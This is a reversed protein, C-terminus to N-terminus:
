LTTQDIRRRTGRRALRTLPCTSAMSSFRGAGIKQAHSRERRALFRAAGKVRGARRSRSTADPRLADRCNRRASAACRRVFPQPKAAAVDGGIARAPSQGLDAESSGASGTATPANGDQRSLVRRAAPATVRPSM